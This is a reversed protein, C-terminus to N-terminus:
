VGALVEGVRQWAHGEALDIQHELQEGVFVWGVGGGGHMLDTLRELAQARQQAQELVLEPAGLEGALALRQAVGGLAEGAGAVGLNHEGGEVGEDGAVWALECAARCYALQTFSQEGLLGADLVDGEALGDGTGDEHCLELAEASLDEGPLEGVAGADRENLAVEDAEVCLSSLAVQAYQAALAVLGDRKVLPAFADLIEAVGGFYELAAVGGLATM